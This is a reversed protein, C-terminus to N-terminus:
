GCIECPLLGKSRIRAATIPKAPKGVVMPCGEVHVRATGSLWLSPGGAAPAPAPRVRVVIDPLLELRRHGVAQRALLFLFGNAVTAVLLGVVALNLWPVQDQLSDEHRAAIWAAGVLLAAVLDCAGVARAQARTWPASARRDSM